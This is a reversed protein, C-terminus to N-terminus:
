WAPPEGLPLVDARYGPGKALLWDRLRAHAYLEAHDPTTFFGSVTKGAPSIIRVGVRPGRHTWTNLGYGLWEGDTRHDRIQQWLPKTPDALRNILSTHYIYLHGSDARAVVGAPLTVQIASALEPTAEDGLTEHFLPKRGTAVASIEVSNVEAIARRTPDQSGAELGGEVQSGPVGRGLREFADQSGRCVSDASARRFATDRAYAQADGKWKVQGDAVEIQPGFIQQLAGRLEPGVDSVSRTLGDTFQGDVPQLKTTPTLLGLAEAEGRLVDEVGMGSGFDFPPWPTKFRSIKTWISDTKLAIMRGGFFRGGHETWRARWDRPVIRSESRVLEWAPAAALADPDQGSKWDAHGYAQQVQTSVILQTRRESGIDTLKGSDPAQSDTLGEDRALDMLDRALKARDTLVGSTDRNNALIDGVGDQIRQMIKASEVGASLQATVRLQAPMEAWQKTRLISAVPTKRAHFEVAEALPALVINPM